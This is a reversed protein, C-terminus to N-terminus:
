WTLIHVASYPVYLHIVANVCFGWTYRDEALDVWDVYKRGIGKLDMKINRKLRRASRRPPRTEESIGM